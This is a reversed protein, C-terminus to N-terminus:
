SSQLPPETVLLVQQEQLPDPNSEWCGHPTECADKVGTGPSRVGEELRWPYWACVHQVYMRTPLVCM